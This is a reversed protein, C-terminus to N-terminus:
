VVSIVQKAISFEENTSIAFVKPRKVMTLGKVALRRIVPSREGVGGTFVIGNVKGLLGAYLALYSRLRNIFVALALQARKKQQYSFGTRGHYDIVRYGAAKLIERMDSSFGSLGLLGSKRNLLKEVQDPTLKLKKQIFLPLVPDIDGCRTGMVLGELPTFGMSNVIPKGKKIATVSCGNGLHVTILNLKSLSKKLKIAAQSAVYQHSIGHFGYKRIGYRKYLEYPLAYLYNNPKLNAYFATDFVAVNKAKPLLKYCAKIVKLNTPNHLPALKNYKAIQQWVKKSVVTPKFFKEGGHVVRHGVVRVDKQKDGLKDLIIKLADVHNSVKPFNWQKKGFFLFSDPLGIREFNGAIVETFSPRYQFLKFKLTASGANLVLIYKSM